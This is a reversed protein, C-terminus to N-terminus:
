SPIKFAVYDEREAAEKVAFARKHVSSMKGCLRDLLMVLAM